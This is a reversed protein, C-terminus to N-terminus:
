VKQIILTPFLGNQEKNPEVTDIPLELFEGHDLFYKVKTTVTGILEDKGHFDKDLLIFQFKQYKSKEYNFSFTHSWNPNDSNLLYRTQGLLVPKKNNKDTYTVIVYPDAKSARDKQPLRKASLKFQVFRSEPGQNKQFHMSKSASKHMPKLLM